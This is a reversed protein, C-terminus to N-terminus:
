LPQPGFNCLVGPRLGSQPPDHELPKPSLSNDADSSGEQPGPTGAAAGAGWQKHLLTSWLPGSIQRPHYVGLLSQHDGHPPPRRVFLLRVPSPSSKIIHTGPSGCTTHKFSLNYILVEPLFFLYLRMCLITHIPLNVLYDALM